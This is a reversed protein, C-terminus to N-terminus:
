SDFRREWRTCEDLLRCRLDEGDELGLWPMVEQVTAVELDWNTGPIRGGARELEAATPKNHLCLLAIPISESEGSMRVKGSLGDLVWEPDINGVGFHALLPFEGDDEVVYRGKPTNGKLAASRLEALDASAIIVEHSKRPAIIRGSIRKFAVKAELETHAVIVIEPERLPGAFYYASPEEARLAAQLEEEGLWGAYDTQMAVLIGTEVDPSHILSANFVFDEGREIQRLKEGGRQKMYHAPGTLVGCEIAFAGVAIRM